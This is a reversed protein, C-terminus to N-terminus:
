GQVIVKIKERGSAVGAEMSSKEAQIQKIERGMLSAQNSIFLITTLFCFEKDKLNMGLLAGIM